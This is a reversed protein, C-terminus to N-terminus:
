AYRVTLKQRRKASRMAGGVFGFGLLLMAWTAPEPVAAVNLSVGFRNDALNDDFLFFGVTTPASLTFTGKYQAANQLSLSTSNFYGNGPTQPGLGGNAQGDGLSFTQSNIIYKISNEFGLVCNQGNVDCGSNNSFRSFADFLGSVFTINYTGAGLPLPVANSGDLSANLKGDVNVVTAASVGPAMSVLGSALIATAVAKRM